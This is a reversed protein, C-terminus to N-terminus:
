LVSYCMVRIQKVILGIVSIFSNHICLLNGVDLFNSSYHEVQVTAEDKRVNNRKIERITEM